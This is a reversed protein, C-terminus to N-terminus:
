GNEYRNDIFKRGLKPFKLSTNINFHTIEALTKSDYCFHIKFFNISQPM